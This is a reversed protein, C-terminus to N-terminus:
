VRAKKKSKSPQHANAAQILIEVVEQNLSRRHATAMEKLKEKLGENTPVEIYMREIGNRRPM